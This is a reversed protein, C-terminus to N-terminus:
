RVRLGSIIYPLGSLAPGASSKAHIQGVGDGYASDESHGDKDPHERRVERVAAEVTLLLDDSREEEDQEGDGVSDVAIERATATLDGGHAHKEIREGVLQEDGRGVDAEDLEIRVYDLGPDGDHDDAALEEDGSEAGDGRRFAKGDFGAVDALEFGNDLDDGDDGGDEVVAPVHPLESPEDDGDIEDSDDTDVVHSSDGNKGGDVVEDGEPALDLVGGCGAAFAVVGEDEGAAFVDGASEDDLIDM